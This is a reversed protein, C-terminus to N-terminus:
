GQHAGGFYLNFFPRGDRHIGGALHGFRKSKIQDYLAQFRSPGVAFHDRMGFLAAQLDRLPLNADYANLDFSRRPQGAESVELYLLREAPLRQSAIQLVGQAQAVLQADAADFQAAIREGIESVSLGARWHYRSVVHEGTATDWKFATYQLVPEGLERARAAELGSVQRELYLKCLVRGPEGEFGFHLHAAGSFAQEVSARLTAPLGLHQCIALSRQLADAPLHRSNISLLFRNAQLQGPAIRFSREHFHVPAMEGVAARLWDAAEAMPDHPLNLPTSGRRRLEDGIGPSDGPTVPPRRSPQMPAPTAAPRAAASPAPANALPRRLTRSLGQALRWAANPSLEIRHGAVFGVGPDPPAMSDEPRERSGFELTVRGDDERRLRFSNAPESM